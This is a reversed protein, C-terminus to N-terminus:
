KKWVIKGLVKAGEKIEIEKQSSYKLDGEIVATPLLVIKDGCLYADGQIIGSIEVKRARIRCNGIVLGAIMAKECGAKLKGYVKAGEELTFKQCFADVDKIVEGGMSVEQAFAKISKGVWGRMNLEQSFTYICGSISDYINVVRAFSYLNGVVKERVNVEEGSFVKGFCLDSFVFVFFLFIGTLRLIVKM